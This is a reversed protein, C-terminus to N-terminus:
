MRGMIRDAQARTVWNHTVANEIMTDIYWRDWWAKVIGYYTSSEENMLLVIGSMMSFYENILKQDAIISEISECKKIEYPNALNKIILFDNM